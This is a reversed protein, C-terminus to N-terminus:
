GGALFNKSEGALVGGRRVALVVSVRDLFGVSTSDNPLSLADPSGTAVAGLYAQTIDESTLDARCGSHDNPPRGSIVGRHVGLCFSAHHAGIDIRCRRRSGRGETGDIQGRDM